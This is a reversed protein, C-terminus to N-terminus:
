AGAVAFIIDRDSESEHAPQKKDRDIKSKPFDAFIKIKRFYKKKIKLYKTFNM